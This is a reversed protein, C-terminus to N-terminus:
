AYVEQIFARLMPLEEREDITHAKRYRKFAIPLGQAQLFQIQSETVKFDLVDDFTGHTVLWKGSKAEPSMEKVLAEADYVYGSIGIFARFSLATRAAWELIMLCGQSFGFLVTDETRFGQAKIESMVQDLLTRSHLIGPGQNPPLDYWSFGTYYEEPAQLLLYNLDDAELASPLWRFGAPSDGRGHLVVILKSSSIKAPIWESKVATTKM